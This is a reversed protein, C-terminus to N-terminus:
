KFFFSPVVEPSMYVILFIFGFAALSEGIIKNNIKINHIIIDQGMMQYIAISIYMIPWALRQVRLFESTIFSLPIVLLMLLNINSCFEIISKQRDNFILNKSNKVLNLSLVYFMIIVFIILLLTKVTTGEQFYVNQRDSALFGIYNELKGRFPILILTIAIVFFTFAKRFRKLLPILVFSFYFLCSSHICSAIWILLIYILVSWWKDKFLFILAFLSICVAVMFRVQIIDLLAPYLLYLGWVLNINKGLFYKFTILLLILSLFVLLAKLQFFDFHHERGWNNILYWGYGEGMLENPQIYSYIFLYNQLDPINTSVFSLYTLFLIIFFNLLNPRYVFIGLIILLAFIYIM